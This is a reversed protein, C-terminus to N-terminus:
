TKHRLTRLAASESAEEKDRCLEAQPTPSWPGGPRTSQLEGDREKQPNRM